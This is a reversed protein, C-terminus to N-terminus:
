PMAHHTKTIGTGTEGGGRTSVTRTVWVAGSYARALPRRTPTM